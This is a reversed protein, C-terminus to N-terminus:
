AFSFSFYESKISRITSEWWIKDFCDKSNIDKRTWKIISMVASTPITDCECSYHVKCDIVALSISKNKQKLHMIWHIWRLQGKFGRQILAKKRCIKRQDCLIYISFKNIIFLVFYFTNCSFDINKLLFDRLMLCKGSVFLFRINNKIDSSFQQFSFRILIFNNERTVIEKILNSVISGLHIESQFLSVPSLKGNINIAKLVDCLKRAIYVYLKIVLNITVLKKKPSLFYVEFKSQCHVSIRGDYLPLM